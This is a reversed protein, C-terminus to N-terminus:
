QTLTYKISKYIDNRKIYSSHGVIKTSFAGFINGLFAVININIKKSLLLSSIGFVSDGAGITDVPNVEFARLKVNKTKTAQKKKKCFHRM